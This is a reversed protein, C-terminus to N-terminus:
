KSLGEKEKQKLQAELFKKLMDESQEETLDGNQAAESVASVFTMADKKPIFRKSRSNYIETADDGIAEYAKVKQQSRL